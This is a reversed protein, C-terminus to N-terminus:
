PELWGGLFRYGAPTIAGGLDGTVYGMRLAYALANRSSSSAPRRRIRAIDVNGGAENAMKLLLAANERNETDSM